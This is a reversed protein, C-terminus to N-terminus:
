RLVTLKRAVTRMPTTLRYVYTGSALNAADFHETYTGAPRMGDVLTAVERGLLDYVKLNTFQPDELSFQITTSPNFPNPYNQDLGFCGPTHERAVSTVTSVSVSESYHVVGNLDQQRLRYDWSGPPIGTDTYAYSHQDTTTGHGAVFAGPVGAWVTDSNAKREVFFGYNNVESLTTWSLKVGSASIATAAFSALRVGLPASNGVVFPGFDTVTYGSTTALVPDNVYIGNCTGESAFAGPSATFHYVELSFVGGPGFGLQSGQHDFDWNFSLKARNGGATGESIRWVRWACRSTDLLAFGPSSGDLTEVRVTYTEAADGPDPFITVPNYSSTTPGVPYLMANVGTVGGGTRRVRGTGNTVICKGASGPPVSAQEAFTLDNGGLILNGNALLLLALVSDSANLVVGSPNSITLENFATPGIVKQQSTGNLRVRGGDGAVFQGFNKWDGKVTILSHSQYRRDELIANVRITLDGNVTVSDAIQKIGGGLTLHHFVNNGAISQVGTGNMIFTGTDANLTGDGQWFDAVTHTYPGANFRADSGIAFSGNVDMPGDVTKTGHRMIVPGFTNTGHIVQPLTGDFYFPVKGPLCTGDNIWDGLITVIINKNSLDLVAQASITLDGDVSLSGDPVKTGTGLYLDHYHYGTAVTQTGSGLYSVKGGYLGGGYNNMVVNGSLWLSGQTMTILGPTTLGVELTGLIWLFDSASTIIIEGNDYLLMGDCVATGSNIIVYHGAIVVSDSPGPVTGGSWVAPDSWNGSTLATRTAGSAVEVPQSLLLLSIFAM